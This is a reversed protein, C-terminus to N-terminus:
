EPGGQKCSSSNSIDSVDDEVTRYAKILQVRQLSIGQRFGRGVGQFQERDGVAPHIPIQLGQM